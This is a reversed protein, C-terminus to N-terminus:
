INLLTVQANALLEGEIDVDDMPLTTDNQFILVILTQISLRLQSCTTDAVECM